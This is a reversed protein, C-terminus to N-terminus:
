DHELAAILGDIQISTYESIMAPISRERRGTGGGSASPFYLAVDDMASPGLHNARYRQSSSHDLRKLCIASVRYHGDADVKPGNFHLEILLIVIAYLGDRRGHVLTDVM